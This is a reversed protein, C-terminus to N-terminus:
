NAQGGGHEQSGRLIAWNTVNLGADDPLIGDHFNVSFHRAKDILAVSTVALNALSLLYDFTPLPVALFYAQENPFYSLSREKAWEAIHLDDSIM